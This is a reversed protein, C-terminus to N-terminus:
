KTLYIGWYDYFEELKLKKGNQNILVADTDEGFNSIVTDVFVFDISHNSDNYVANDFREPKSQYMEKLDQWRANINGGSFTERYVGEIQFTVINDNTSASAIFHHSFSISMEGWFEKEWTEYPGFENGQTAWINRIEEYTRTASPIEGFWTGSLQSASIVRSWTDSDEGSSDCGTFFPWFALICIMLSIFCYNKKTKM